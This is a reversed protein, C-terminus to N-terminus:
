ILVWSYQMVVNVNVFLNQSPFLIDTLSYHRGKVKNEDM